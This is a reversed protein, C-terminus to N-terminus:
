FNYYVWVSTATWHVVCRGGLVWPYAWLTESSNLQLAHCITQRVCMTVIIILWLKQNYLNGNILRCTFIDIM